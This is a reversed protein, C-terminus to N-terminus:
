GAAFTRSVNVGVPFQHVTMRDPYGDRWNRQDIVTNEVKVYPVVHTEGFALLLRATLDFSYVNSHMAVSPGGSKAQGHSHLWGFQGALALSGFSREGFVHVGYWQTEAESQPVAGRSEGDAHALTYVVGFFADGHRIDAGLHAAAVKNRHGVGDAVKDSRSDSGTLDLWVAGGDARPTTLQATARKDVTQRVLHTVDMSAAAVGSEIWLDARATFATMSGVLLIPLTKLAFQQM